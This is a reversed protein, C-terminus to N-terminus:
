DPWGELTAGEWDLNIQRNNRCEESYGKVLLGELMKRNDRKVKEIIAEAIFRSKNGYPEIAEAVREPVTINLRKM